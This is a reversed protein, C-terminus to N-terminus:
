MIFQTTDSLCPTTFTFMKERSRLKFGLGLYALVYFYQDTSERKGLNLIQFDYNRLQLKM